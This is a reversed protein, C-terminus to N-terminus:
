KERNTKSLVIKFDTKTIKNPCQSHTFQRESRGSICTFVM